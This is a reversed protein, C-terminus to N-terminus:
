NHIIVALDAGGLLEERGARAMHVTHATFAREASKGGEVAQEASLEEVAPVGPGDSIKLVEVHEHPALETGAIEASLLGVLEEQRVLM